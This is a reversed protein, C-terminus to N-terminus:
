KNKVISLIEKEKVFLENKLNNVYNLDVESILDVYNFTDIDRIKDQLFMRGIEEVDNFERM